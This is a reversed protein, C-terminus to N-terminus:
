WLRPASASKLQLYVGGKRNKFSFFLAYISYAILEFGFTYFFVLFNEMNARRGVIIFVLICVKIFIFIYFIDKIMYKPRCECVCVYVRYLDRRGM